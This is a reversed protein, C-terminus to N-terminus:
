RVRFVIALTRQMELLTLTPDLYTLADSSGSVFVGRTGNSVATCSSRAVTLDGFDTSNGTTAVTIYEMINTHGAAGDHGGGRVGRTDNSVAGSSESSHGHADGFDTANGTSAITVYEIVDYYTTVDGYGAHAHDIYGPFLVGRTENSVGAQSRAYGLLNGFDVSDGTTAITIYEITDYQGATSSGAWLGRLGNGFGSSTHNRATQSGFVSANGTTSFTIYETQPSSTDNGAAFVGRSGNSMGAYVRKTQSLDGFDTGNGTTAITIYEISNLDGIGSAYGGASVGRGGNWTIPILSTEDVDMWYLRGQEGIKLTQGGTGAVARGGVLTHSIKKSM